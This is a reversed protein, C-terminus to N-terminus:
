VRKCAVYRTTDDFQGRNVEFRFPSALAQASLDVTGIILCLTILIIHRIM